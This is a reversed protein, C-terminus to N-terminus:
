KVERRKLEGIFGERTLCDGLRELAVEKNSGLGCTGYFRNQHAKKPGIVSAIWQVGLMELNYWLVHTKEMIAGYTQGQSLRYLTSKVGTEKGSLGTKVNM